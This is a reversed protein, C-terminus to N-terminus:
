LVTKKTGHTKDKTTKGNGFRMTLSARHTDGFLGMPLYAYDFQLTGVNIGFGASFPIREISPSETFIYGARLAFFSLIYSELGIRADVRKEQVYRDIEASLTTGTKLLMSGGIKYQMPLPFEQEYIKENNGVINLVSIGLVASSAVLVAVGVDGAYTISNEKYLSQRLAKVTVGYALSEYRMGMGLHVVQSNGGFVQGTKNGSIDREVVDDYYLHEVSVGIGVNDFTTGWGLYEIRVGAMWENHGLLLTSTHLTTLMAPNWQLASVDNPVAVFAGGMAVPRAALEIKTFAAGTTGAGDAYAVTYASAMSIAICLILRNM